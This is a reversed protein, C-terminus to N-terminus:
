QTPDDNSPLEHVWARYGDLATPLTPFVRNEGLTQLFGARDLQVALDQKVRALALVIGRDQMAQHLDDLIAVATSDIEVNAEVNLLLWRVPGDAAMVEDVAAEARRRFDAANAFFLPSDYRYVVLGPVTRAQPCDDVDHM